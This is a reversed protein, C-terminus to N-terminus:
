RSPQHNLDLFKWRVEHILVKLPIWLALQQACRLYGCAFYYRVRVLYIREHVEKHSRILLTKSVITCPSFSILIYRSVAVGRLDFFHIFDEVDCLLLGSGRLYTFWLAPFSIFVRVIWRLGPKLKNVLLTAEPWITGAQKVRWHRILPPVSITQM